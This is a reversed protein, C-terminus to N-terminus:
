ARAEEIKTKIERAWPATKKNGLARNLRTTFRRIMISDSYDYQKAVERTMRILNDAAESSLGSALTLVAGHIGLAPKVKANRDFSM